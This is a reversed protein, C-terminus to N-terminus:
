VRQLMIRALVELGGAQPLLVRGGREATELLREALVRAQPLEGPDHLREHHQELPNEYEGVGQALVSEILDRLEGHLRGLGKLNEVQYLFRWSKRTDQATKMEAHVRLRDEFTEGSLKRVEAVLIDPLVLSALNEVELDADPHLVIRLSALVRAILSDDSLS